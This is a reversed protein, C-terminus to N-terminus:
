NEALRCPRHRITLRNAVQQRASPMETYSRWRGASRVAAREPKVASVRIAWSWHSAQVPSAAAPSTDMRTSSAM